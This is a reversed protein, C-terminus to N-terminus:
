VNQNFSIDEGSSWETGVAFCDGMEWFVIQFKSFVKKLIRGFDYYPFQFQIKALTPNSGVVESHVKRQEVM